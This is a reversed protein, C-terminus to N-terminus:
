ACVVAYRDMVFLHKEKPACYPHPAGAPCCKMHKEQREMLILTKVRVASGAISPVTAERKANGGGGFCAHLFFCCRVCKPRCLWHRLGCLILLLWVCAIGEKEEGGGGGSRVGVIM